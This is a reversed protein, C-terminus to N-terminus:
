ATPDAPDMRVTVPSPDKRAASQARLERLSRALAEAGQEGVRILARSQESRALPLPGFLTAGPPLELAALAQDVAARTGTLTAMRGAPPLHLDRRDALEREAAWVPDWRLLAEVAPIVIGTPAGCLVVQGGRSGPRVLAAAGLWRRLAEEGADLAPRDLLAWADLLLAAAYGEEGARPEAGPTAIVLRPTPEVVDLVVGAGSTQVPVGAFARGLEEATRRAGVVAARVRPDGCTPCAYSTALSGCWRCSLPGHPGDLALPGACQPCRARARCTRCSLSPLYGRRPVQVLVPGQALAAKATRWALSPVHAARALPDAADESGEDARRVHATAARRRTAEVSALEGEEVLRQVACSRAYGATLLAAGELGARLRLVERTHPYPARPELHLDDGDDWWAVLGLRRVPAFAAARTGVVVRVHGRLVKLYATYRAQPGQDASLRVHRGPGLVETLAADARSLDRHDPVVLVAGRGSRLVAAAAEAFAGPWDQATRMAPALLLAAGPHGGEELRELYAEGAPYRLWAETSAQPPTAEILPPDLPLAAEARAHRPPVALRLVDGVTGAYRQALSRAVALVEPTLVPEPSVVSRLPALRGPHSAHAVREIVFGPLDQGSFRVKVRVGSRAEEALAAPVAYDFPRDLHALGSDVLVRAVPLVVPDAGATASVTPGSSTRGPRRRPLAASLDLLAEQESTM